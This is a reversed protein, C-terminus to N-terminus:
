SWRRHGWMWQEPAERIMREFIAHLVATTAEIDARRDNTEPMDIKEARISFNAGRLRKVRCAYLAAGRVRAAMVPFPSSGAPRGFFEIMVGGGDRLDALVGVCGGKGLFKLLANVSQAGKPFVGGPFQAQRRELIFRDVYPNTAAQYVTAPNLGYQVLPAGSLEWNGMHLGCMLSGPDQRMAAYIDPTEVALRNAAIVEPLHFFEAFTRGLNEWMARAIRQREAPSKEPFARALNELARTHRYFQPAIWRWLAGCVDSAVDLPLAGILAAILRFLAYEALHRLRLLQSTEDM